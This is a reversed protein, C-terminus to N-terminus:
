FYGKTNIKKKNFIFYTNKFIAIKNYDKNNTSYKNYSIDHIFSFSSLGEKCIGDKCNEFNGIQKTNCKQQVPNEYYKITNWPTGYLSKNGDQLTIQNGKKDNFKFFKINIEEQNGWWHSVNEVFSNYVLNGKDWITKCIPLNDNLNKKVSNNIEIDVSNKSAKDLISKSNNDFAIKEKRGDNEIFELEGKYPYVIIRSVDYANIKNVLDSYLNDIKSPPIYPPTIFNDYKNRVLNLDCKITPNQETAHFKEHEQSIFDSNGLGIHEYDVIKYLFIVKELYFDCIDQAYVGNTLFGLAILILNLKRNM